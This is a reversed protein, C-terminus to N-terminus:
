AALDLWTSKTLPRRHRLLARLTDTWFRQARDHQMDVPHLGLRLLPTDRYHALLAQNFGRSVLRRAASRASWVLGPAPYTRGRHLDILTRATSTYRLGCEAVAARGGPGLLWAPAVFGAPRWGFEAFLALGRRLREVAAGRGLRYFEAERTYIRRMWWDVPDGRLPTDDAHFYGHLVIEDGQRRRAEMAQVFWPNRRLDGQHHFDPVVLLTLPVQHHDAFAVLPRYLPWSHPAVDHLVVCLAPHPETSPM